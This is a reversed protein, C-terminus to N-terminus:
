VRKGESQNRTLIFFVGGHRVVKVTNSQEPITFPNNSKSKTYWTDGDVQIYGLLSLQIVALSSLEVIM